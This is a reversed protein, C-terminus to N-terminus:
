GSGDKEDIMPIQMYEIAWACLANLLPILTMGLPTFSYEVKPPVQTYVNRTIIGERELKRLKKTLM